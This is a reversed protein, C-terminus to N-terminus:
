NGLLSQFQQEIQSAYKSDILVIQRKAENIALQNDYASVATLTTVTEVTSGDPTVVTVDSVTVIPNDLTPLTQPVLQNTAFNYTYPQPTVTSNYVVTNSSGNLSTTVTETQQYVAM